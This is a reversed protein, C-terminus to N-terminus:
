LLFDGADLQHLGEIRIMLEPALNGLINASVITNGGEFRVQVQGVSTFAGDGIFKFAQDGTLQPNADIARLDILDNRGQTSTSDFDMIRDTALAHSEMWDRYVFIDRERDTGPYDRQAGWLEDAGTGGIITDRGLGGELVDRGGRGDLIDNGGSGYLNNAGSSGYLQDAGQNSFVNEINILRDGEAEGGFGRGIALDVIVADGAYYATDIGAGGDLFDAGIGGILLDNDDGGYLRDDGGDGQLTDDGAGGELIDAKDLKPDGFGLYGVLMDNGTGGILHDAGAGGTLWDNGAGGEMTDDRLSGIIADDFDSGIVHEIGSFSDRLESNAAAMSHGPGMEIFLAEKALSYDLIDHGEGGFITDGDNLAYIRDDGGGGHIIDAGAGGHIVDNGSGAHITDAGKDGYLVDALDGGTITDNGDGGAIINIRGYTGNLVDANQTGKVENFDFTFKLRKAM